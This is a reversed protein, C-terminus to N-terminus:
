APRRTDDGSVRVAFTFSLRPSFLSITSIPCSPSVHPNESRSVSVDPFGIRGFPFMVECYGFAKELGGFKANGVVGRAFLRSVCRGPATALKRSRDSGDDRFDGAHGWHRSSARFLGSTTTSLETTTQPTRARNAVIRIMEFVRSRPLEGGEDGDLSRFERSAM